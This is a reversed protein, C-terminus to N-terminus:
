EGPLDNPDRAKQMQDLMERVTIELRKAEADNGGYHTNIQQAVILLNEEPTTGFKSCIAVEKALRTIEEWFICIMTVPMRSTKRDSRVAIEAEYERWRSRTETCKREFEDFFGPGQAFRAGVKEGLDNLYIFSQFVAQLTDHFPEGVPIHPFELHPKNDVFENFLKPQEFVYALLSIQAAGHTFVPLAAEIRIEDWIEALSSDKQEAAAASSKRSAIQGMYRKTSESIAEALALPEVMKVFFSPLGYDSSSSSTKRKLWGFM